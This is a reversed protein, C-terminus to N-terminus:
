RSDPPRRRSKRSSAKTTGLLRSLQKALQGRVGRRESWGRKVIFSNFLIVTLVLVGSLVSVIAIRIFQEDSM